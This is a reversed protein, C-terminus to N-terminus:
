AATLYDVVAVPVPPPDFAYRALVRTEAKGGEGITDITICDVLALVIERKTSDDAWAVRDRMLKLMSEASLIRMELAEATEQGQELTKREGELQTVESALRHLEQEAEFESIL